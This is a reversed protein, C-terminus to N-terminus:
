VFRPNEHVGVTTRCGIEPTRRIPNVAHFMSSAARLLQISQDSADDAADNASATCFCRECPAHQSLHLPVKRLAVTRRYVRLADGFEDRGADAVTQKHWLFRCSWWCGGQVFGKLCSMMRRFDKLHHGFLADILTRTVVAIHAEPVALLGDM